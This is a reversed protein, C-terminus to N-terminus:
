VKLTLQHSVKTTLVLLLMKTFIQNFDATYYGLNLSKQFHHGQGVSELDASTVSKTILVLLLMKTFIDNFDATYFGPNLSKQLDNM